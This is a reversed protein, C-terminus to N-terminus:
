FYIIFTIIRSRIVAITANKSVFTISPTCNALKLPATIKEMTRPTKFRITFGIKLIKPKGNVIIVKPNNAKTILAM